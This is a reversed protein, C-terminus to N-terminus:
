VVLSLMRGPVFVVKSPSSSVFKAIGPDRM